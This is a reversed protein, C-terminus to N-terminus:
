LENKCQIGLRFRYYRNRILTSNNVQRRFHFESGKLRRTNSVKSDSETRSLSKHAKKHNARKLRSELKLRIQRLEDRELNLKEIEEKALRLLERQKQFEEFEEANTNAAVLKHRLLIIEDRDSKIATNLAVMRANSDKKLQELQRKLDSKAELLLQRENKLTDITAIAKTQAAHQEKLSHQLREMEEAHRSSLSKSTEEIQELQARLNANEHELEHKLSSTELKAMQFALESDSSERRALQYDETLQQLEASQEVLDHEAKALSEKLIGVDMEKAKLLHQLHKRIQHERKLLKKHQVLIKHLKNARNRYKELQKSLDEITEQFNSIKESSHLKEAELAQKIQEEQTQSKLKAQQLKEILQERSRRLEKVTHRTWNLKDRLSAVTNEHEVVEVKRSQESEALEEELRLGREVLSQVQETFEAKSFELKEIASRNAEDLAAQLKSERQQYDSNMQDLLNQKEELSQTLLSHNKHLRGIESNLAERTKESNGLTENLAAQLDSERQQFEAQAQAFQARSKDLEQELSVQNRRLQEIEDKFSNVTQEANSRTEDLTVQLEREREQHALESQEHAQRTQLESDRRDKLAADLQIRLNMIEVNQEVVLRQHPNTDSLGFSSDHLHPSLILQKSLDPPQNSMHKEQTNLALRLAEQVTVKYPKDNGLKYSLHHEVLQIIDHALPLSLSVRDLESGSLLVISKADRVTTFM